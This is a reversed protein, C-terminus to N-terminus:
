DEEISYVYVYDVYMYENKVDELEPIPKGQLSDEELNVNAFEMTLLLTLNATPTPSNYSFTEINDLYFTYDVTNNEGPLIAVGYSHFENPNSEYKEGKLGDKDIVISNNMEHISASTFSADTYEVIDIETSEAYNNNPYLWFAGWPKLLNSDKILLNDNSNNNNTFALRAEYYGYNFNRNQSDTERSIYGTHAINNDDVTFSLELYGDETVQVNESSHKSLRSNKDTTSINWKSLSYENDFTDYFLIDNDKYVFPTKRISFFYSFFIALFLIILIIIFIMYSNVSNKKNM